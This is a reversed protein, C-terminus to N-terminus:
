PLSSSSSWSSISDQTSEMVKGEM